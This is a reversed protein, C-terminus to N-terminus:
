PHQSIKKIGSVIKMIYELKKHSVIFDNSKEYSKKVFYVLNEFFEQIEIEYHLVTYM